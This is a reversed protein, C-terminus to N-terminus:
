SGEGPMAMVTGTATSTGFVFAVYNAGPDIDITVSSNALVPIMPTSTGATPVTATQTGRGIAFWAHSANPNSLRMAALPNGGPPAYQTFPMGNSANGTGAIPLCESQRLNQRRISM